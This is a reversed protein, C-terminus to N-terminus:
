VQTFHPYMLGAGDKGPRQLNNNNNEEDPTMARQNYTAVSRSAYVHDVSDLDDGSQHRGNSVILRRVALLRLKVLKVEQYYLWSAFGDGFMAVMAFFFAWDVHNFEPYM